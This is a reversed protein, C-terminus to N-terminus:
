GARRAAQGGSALGAASVGAISATGATLAAGSIDASLQYRDGRYLCDATMLVRGRPDVYAMRLRLCAQTAPITLLRRAAADPVVPEITMRASGPVVRYRAALLENLSGDLDTPGLGPVLASPLCVAEIAMPEGSGSRLRTFRHVPDGVPIRLTAATPGDAPEVAFDLLRSSPLLGRERMDHTFSTLGLFRLVPQPLVYTGSGHRRAVLGEAILADTAHRVTMRAAGWRQSLARESPLRDGPRSAAILERLRARLEQRTVEDATSM